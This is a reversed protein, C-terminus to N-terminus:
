SDMITHVVVSKNGNFNAIYKDNHSFKSLKHKITSFFEDVESM